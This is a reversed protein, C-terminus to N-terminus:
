ESGKAAEAAAIRDNISKLFHTVFRYGVTTIKLDASPNRGILSLSGYGTIPGKLCSLVEFYRLRYDSMPVGGADRYWRMLQTQDVQKGLAQSFMFFEDAPDGVYSAEWDLVASVKGDLLLVNHLGYDGHVLRPKESNRPVNQLLWHFARTLTPSAGFDCKRAIAQWYRVYEPVLEALSSYKLWKSLHSRTLHPDDGRLETAHIKALVRVLDKILEESLATTAGMVDGFNTGAAKKSVFFRAGLADPDDELWLPEAVPLGSHFAVQVVNFEKNVIAGDMHFITLPQDARLILLRRGHKSDQLELEFTAKAFGGPINKVGIVEINGWDPFKARLYRELRERTVRIGAPDSAPAGKAEAGSHLDAEWSV